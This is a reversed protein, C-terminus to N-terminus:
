FLPFQLIQSKLDRATFPLMRTTNLLTLLQFKFLISDNKKEITMDLIACSNKM